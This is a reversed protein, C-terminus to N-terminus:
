VFVNKMYLKQQGGTQVLTLLVFVFVKVSATNSLTM